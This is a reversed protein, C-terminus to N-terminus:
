VAGAHASLVRAAKALPVNRNIVSHRDFNAVACLMRPQLDLRALACNDPTPLEEENLRSRRITPSM